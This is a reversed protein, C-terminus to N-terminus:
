YYKDNRCTPPVAPACLLSERQSKGIVPKFSPLVSRVRGSEDSSTKVPNMPFNETFGVFQLSRERKTVPVVGGVAREREGIPPLLVVAAM